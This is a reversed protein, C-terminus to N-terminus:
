FKRFRKYRNEVLEDATMAQYKKITDVLHEKLYNLSLEKSEEGDETREPVVRDIVDMKKLDKSTLKMM